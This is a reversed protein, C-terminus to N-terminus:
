RALTLSGPFVFHSVGGGYGQQYRACAGGARGRGLREDDLGLLGPDARGASRRGASPVQPGEAVDAVVDKLEDATMKTDPMM